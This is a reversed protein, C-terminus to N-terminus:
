SCSREIADVIPVTAASAGTAVAHTCTTSLPTVEPNIEVSIGRQQYGVLAAAPYVVGSTGIVLVLEARSVADVAGEWARPPLAEGFWVVNPRLLAGCDCHPPIEPAAEVYDRVDRERTCRAQMINGHLEIVKSAGGRVHLGDVNQTIITAEIGPLTELRALAQHAANPQAERIKERRWEYWRWVLEPDRAFAEPTALDEPRHNEWLGGSGRFVPVGSEASIGAGTLTVIHRPKEKVIWEIAEQLANTM